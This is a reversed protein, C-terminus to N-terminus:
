KYYIPIAPIMKHVNIIGKQTNVNYDITIRSLKGFAMIMTISGNKSDHINMDVTMTGKKLDHTYNLDMSVTGKITVGSMSANRGNPTHFTIEYSDSIGVLGQVKKEQNTPRMLLFGKVAKEGTITGTQGTEPNTVDISYGDNQTHNTTNNSAQVVQTANQKNAPNGYEDTWQSDNIDVKPQETSDSLAEDIEGEVGSLALVDGAGFQYNGGNAVVAGMAGNFWNRVANLHIDGTPANGASSGTEVTGLWRSIGASIAGTRAGAWVNEGMLAAMIGGSLAGGVAAAGVPGLTAALAPGCLEGCCWGIAGAVAGVFAGILPNGGNAYADIAGVVAAIAVVVWFFQGTPDVRCVGNNGCYSYLNPNNPDAAPDESIFRGLEPDYWRANYYYLGSDSDYEKGTFGHTEDFDGNSVFKTGFAFYDANFVVKGSQDTIVRVSGLYDTHYYYVKATTDGIVGDVRALHKGLAYVYSKVKEDKMRKEFIPETGEFVYHITGSSGRKVERLGDPSYEYDSVVTGNKSVETLRNLLDYTYQWYEVGDGSTATFTVTDGNISFKNGKKVLNGADDYVFAYKGDTKLRDTNAYYASTYSKTQILTVRQYTRNGDADYQFEETRATAEQYVRLMKAFDNLFTAKSKASFYSDREDFKVHVKLYRTAIRETLTITIVGQSDTAFTWSSRPIMTYTSNDSSTYLDLTRQIVRHVTFKGDPIVQIKKVGPATTGFDIGISSSNYDLGMMATLIPSFDMIKAGLYDGIKVGYTGTTTDSELFKGPTISRTLQNDADYDFTKTSNGETIATINNNNDYTFGQQLISTGNLTVQYDKLRNNADYSCSAEAGNAYTLSTM